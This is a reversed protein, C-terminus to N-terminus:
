YTPLPTRGLKKAFDIPELCERLEFELVQDNAIYEGRTKLNKQLRQQYSEALHKVGLNVVTMPKATKIGLRQDLEKDVAESMLMYHGALKEYAQATKPQKKRLLVSSVNLHLAACRRYLYSARTLDQHNDRYQQRVVDFSPLAEETQAQSTLCLLACLTLTSCKVYKM